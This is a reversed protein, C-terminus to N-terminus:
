AYFCGWPMQNFTTAYGLSPEAGGGPRLAGGGPRLAGGGLNKHKSHIWSSGNSKQFSKKDTKRQLIGTHNLFRKQHFIDLGKSQFV